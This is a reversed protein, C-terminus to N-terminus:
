RYSLLLELVCGAVSLSVGRDGIRHRLSSKDDQLVQYAVGDLGGLMGLMGGALVRITGEPDYVVRYGISLSTAVSGLLAQEWFDAGM